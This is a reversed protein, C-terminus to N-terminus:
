QRPRRGPTMVASRADVSGLGSRLTRRYSPRSWPAAATTFRGRTASSGSAATAAADRNRMARMALTPALRRESGPEGFGMHPDVAAGAAPYAASPKACGHQQKLGGASAGPLQAFGRHDVQHVVVDRYDHWGVGPVAPRGRPPQVELIGAGSLHSDACVAKPDPRTASLRSFCASWQQYRAHADAPPPVHPGCGPAHRGLPCLVNRTRGHRAARTRGFPAPGTRSPTCAASGGNPRVSAPRQSALGTPPSPPVGCYRRSV